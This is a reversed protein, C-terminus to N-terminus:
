LPLGSERAQSEKIFSKLSKLKKSAVKMVNEDDEILYCMSRVNNLISRLYEGHQPKLM